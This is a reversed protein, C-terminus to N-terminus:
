GAKVKLTALYNGDVPYGLSAAKLANQYARRYDKLENCTASLNFFSNGNSPNMAVSQEFDALAKPFQGLQYYCVGRQMFYNDNKPDNLILWSFDEIAENFHGTERLFYSRNTYVDPWGPKLALARSYNQVAPMYQKARSFTKALNLYTEPNLSDLKMSKAYADLAPQMEDRMAYINGLNRYGDANNPKLQISKSFAEIAKDTQGRRGYISGMNLYVDPDDKNLQVFSSFDQLAKDDNNLGSYYQGRNKYAVEAQPYKGIVDNWLTESNEWVRTQENAAMGLFVAYVIFVGTFIWRFSFLTKDTNSFLRDLYWGAIFFLGVSSLYSYRDAMIASGFPMFQLVLVISFFFVLYGFTIVRTHRFSYYVLVLIALAIVPSLYYIPSLGAAANLAPFPYFAALKLPLLLKVQYMVFGYSGFLLPQFVSLIKINAATVSSQILFTITGFILALIFFPIKEIFVAVTFKRGNFYDIALLILPFVVASPKSFLSALFLLGTVTLRMWGKSELYKLYTILGALFFFTYLVDKREAIWAVSEVHMPHIAFLLATVTAIILRKRSLLYIFMFVLLVNLLHFILNTTHFVFASLEVPGDAGSKAQKSLSYDIGLSLMTLPHYNFASQHTFFYWANLTGPQQMPKNDLVYVNDDWNTFKNNLSPKYVAFTIILLLAAVAWPLWTNFGQPEKKSSKAKPKPNNGSRSLHGPKMNMM